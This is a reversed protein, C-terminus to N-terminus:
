EIAWVKEGDIVLGNSFRRGSEKVVKVEKGLEGVLVRGSGEVLQIDRRVLLRDSDRRALVPREDYERCALNMMGLGLILVFLGLGLSYIQHLSIPLNFPPLIRNAQSTVTSAGPFGANNTKSASHTVTRTPCASPSLLTPNYCLPSASSSSTKSAIPQKSSISQSASATSRSTPSTLRASTIAVTTSTKSLPFTLVYTTSAIVNPPETLPPPFIFSVAGSPKPVVTVLEVVTTSSTNRTQSQTSRRGGIFRPETHSPINTTTSIAAIQLAASISLLSPIRVTVETTTTASPHDLALKGM